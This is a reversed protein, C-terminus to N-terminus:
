ETQAEGHKVFHMSCLALLFFIAAYPFLAGYDKTVDRIFGFLIPSVISAAFSFFYYYGTFSGISEARALEVVMPLSNINILSWFIGGVLLLILVVTANQIFLIPLFCLILGVLGTVIMRKRGIKQAIIGSPVAFILFTLSFATLMMAGRGKDVGLANTAYLTFFTEIANYGSFWAFIAFLLFALSRKEDKALSRFGHIKKGFLKESRPQKKEEEDQPVDRDYERLLATERASLAKGHALHYRLRAPERVFIMLLILSVLLGVAGMFFPAKLSPDVTALKGGVLFAIIAGIGGMLNIIGNASSRLIPATVDPMLSIVPSRWLSMFFNFFILVTMASTLTGVRPIFILLVASIPLAFVIWPMRRGLPSVTKDSLTGVLPQFIIGFFNDITMILGILATSQIFREELLVPVFSNYLSWALSSALFGFGILLTNKWNLKKKSM